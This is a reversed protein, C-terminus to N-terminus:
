PNLCAGSSSFNYTKGGITRSGTVMAGSADLYYWVGGQLLWGTAMAGDAKLYYWTSGVQLWGTKKAGNQYYYWLGNEQVWGSKANQVEGQWVGSANFRHKVGGITVTGTAMAGDAKLYYWVTGQQLWGTAMAGSSKFFYWVNGIKQWGTKMVGAADFYYWVGAIQKWGSVKGGNEYYYWKSGESVWGKKSSDILAGSADFEYRKGDIEVSGTVMRGNSKFYYTKGDITLWGVAVEGTEPKLYYWVGAEKRWGTVMAGSANFYYEKNDLKLWGTKMIGDETFYYKNNGEQYWGIKFSGDANWYMWKGDAQHWGQIQHLRSFGFSIFMEMSNMAPSYADYNVTVSPRDFEYGLAPVLYLEAEYRHGPIFYEGPILYTNTDTDWWAMGNKYYHDNRSKLQYGEGNMIATYHAKVGPAPPLITINVETIPINQCTPFTYDARIKDPGLHENVAKASQGNVTVTTLWNGDEDDQFLYNEGAYMTVIVTYRHGQTFTDTPKLYVRTTEDYWAIGNKVYTTNDERLHAGSILTATYDPQGGPRPVDLQTIPINNLLCYNNLSTAPFEYVVLCYRTPDLYNGVDQVTAQCGKLTASVQPIGAANVKFRYPHVAEVLVVVRYLEGGAFTDDTNLRYSYGNGLIQQWGVGNYIRYGQMQSCTDYDTVVRVNSSVAYAERDPISLHHPTQIGSVAVATIAAPAEPCNTFTYSALQKTGADSILGSPNMGGELGNIYSKTFTTASSPHVAVNFAYSSKAYCLVEVRYNHGKTFTTNEKLYVGATVDYWRVGNIYDGSTLTNIYYTANEETITARFLPTYGAVPTEVELHICNITYNSTHAQADFPLLCVFVALVLLIGTLFLGLQKKM